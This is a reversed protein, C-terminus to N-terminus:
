HELPITAKREVKAWAVSRGRLAAFVSKAAIYYMVQRYLLRQWFLWFLLKWDEKWELVFALVCTLYDVALFMAYFIAIRLLNAMSYSTGHYHRQLGAIAIAVIMLFDMLPSILPFLIQFTVVNPLGVWGLSGYRRRLLTDRHKWVSQM